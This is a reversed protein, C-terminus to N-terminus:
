KETKKGATKLKKIEAKLKGNETTKEELKAKIDKIEAKLETDDAGEFYRISGRAVLLRGRERIIRVAKANGKIVLTEM